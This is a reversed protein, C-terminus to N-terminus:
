MSNIYINASRSNNPHTNRILPCRRTPAIFKLFSARCQPRSAQACLKSQIGNTITDVFSSAPRTYNIQNGFTVVSVCLRCRCPSIIRVGQTARSCNIEISILWVAAGNKVIRKKTITNHCIEGGCILTCFHTNIHSLSVTCAHTCATLFYARRASGRYLLGKLLWNCEAVRRGASEPPPPIPPLLGGPVDLGARLLLAAAHSQAAASSM